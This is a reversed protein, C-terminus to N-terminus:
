GKNNAENQSSSCLGAVPISEATWGATDNRTELTVLVPNRRLALKVDDASIKSRKGHRVALPGKVSRVKCFGGPRTGLDKSAVGFGQSRGGQRKGVM